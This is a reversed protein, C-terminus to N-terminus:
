ELKPHEYEPYDWSVYLTGAGCTVSVAYGKYLRMSCGHVIAVLNPRRDIHEGPVVISSRVRETPAQLFFSAVENTRLNTGRKYPYCDIEGAFVKISWETDTAPDVSRFFFSGDGEYKKEESPKGSTHIWTTKMIAM